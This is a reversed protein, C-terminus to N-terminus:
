NGGGVIHNLQNRSLLITGIAPCHLYKQNWNSRSSCHLILISRYHLKSKIQDTWIIVGFARASMWMFRGARWFNSEISITPSRKIGKLIKSFKKDTTKAWILRIWKENSLLHQIWHHISLKPICFSTASCFSPVATCTLALSPPEGWRLYWCFTERVTFPLFQKMLTSHYM